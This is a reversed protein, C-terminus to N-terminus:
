PISPSNSDGNAWSKSLSYLINRSFVLKFTSSLIYIEDPLFKLISICSSNWILCLKVWLSDNYCLPVKVLLPSVILPLIFLKTASIGAAIGGISSSVWDYYSAQSALLRELLSIIM